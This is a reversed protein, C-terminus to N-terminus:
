LCVTPCEDSSVAIPLVFQYCLSCRLIRNISLGIGIIDEAILSTPSLNGRALTHDAKFPCWLDTQLLCHKGGTCWPTVKLWNESIHAGLTRENPQVKNRSLQFFLDYDLTQCPAPWLSPCFHTISHWQLRRNAGNQINEHNLHVQSPPVVSLLFCFWLPFSVPPKVASECM